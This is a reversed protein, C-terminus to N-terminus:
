KNRSNITIYMISCSIIILLFVALFKSILLWMQRQQEERFQLFEDVIHNSAMLKKMELVASDFIDEEVVRNQLKEKIEGVVLSPLNLTDNEDDFSNFSYSNDIFKAFIAEALKEKEGFFCKQFDSVASFFRGIEGVHQRDLFKQLSRREAANQNEFFYADVLDSVKRMPNVDVFSRSLLLYVFFRARSFKIKQLLM